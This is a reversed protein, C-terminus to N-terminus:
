SVLRAMDRLESNRQIIFRVTLLISVVDVIMWLWSNQRYAFIFAAIGLGLSILAVGMRFRMIEYKTYSSRILGFTGLFVVPIAFILILFAWAGVYPLVLFVFSVLSLIIAFGLGTIHFGRVFEEKARNAFSGISRSKRRRASM